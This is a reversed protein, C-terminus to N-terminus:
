CCPKLSAAAKVARTKATTRPTVKTTTSFRPLAGMTGSRHEGIRSAPRCKLM